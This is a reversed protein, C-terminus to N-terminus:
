KEEQFVEFAKYNIGWKICAKKYQKMVAKVYKDGDKRLYYNSERDLIKKIDEFTLIKFYLKSNIVYAYVPYKESSGRCSQSRWVQFVSRNNVSDRAVTPTTYLNNKVEACLIKSKLFEEIMIEAKTLERLEKNANKIREFEGISIEEFMMEEFMVEKM